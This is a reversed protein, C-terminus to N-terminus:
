AGGAVSPVIFLVTGPRVPTALGQLSRCEDDDVYVNVFRRLEGTEDRVRRGVGPARARLLDLVEALSPTGVVDVSLARLGGAHEALAQPLRVTVQGSESM